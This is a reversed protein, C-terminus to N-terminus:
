WARTPMCPHPTLPRQWFSATAILSIPKSQALRPEGTPKVIAVDALRFGIATFAVAFLVAGVLLRTRGTEIAVRNASDMQTRTAVPPIM